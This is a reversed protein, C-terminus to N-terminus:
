VVIQLNTDEFGILKRVEETNPLVVRETEDIIVKIVFPRIRSKHVMVIKDNIVKKEADSKSVPGAWELNYCYAFAEKRVFTIYEENILSWKLSILYYGPRDEFNNTELFPQTHHLKVKMKSLKVIM